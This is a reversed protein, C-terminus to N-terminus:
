SACPRANQGPGDRVVVARGLVHPVAPELAGARFAFRHCREIAFGARRIEAVTDRAPHCGGAVVPWVTAQAVKLFTRLPERDAIVHEYFRLEGDPRLVRRVEGLAAPVDPITCLVLCAVAADVSEDELPLREGVGPLVRVAVPAATARREADARLRPEPEVAVVETVASPYFGFNAGHGAGIEVVRGRLGDLLRARHEDEGRRAAVRQMRPYIRAFLPHDVDHTSSM